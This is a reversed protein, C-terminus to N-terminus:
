HTQVVGEVARRIDKRSPSRPNTLGIRPNTSPEARPHPPRRFIPSPSLVFAQLCSLLRLVVWLSFETHQLSTLSFIKAIFHFHLFTNQDVFSFSSDLKLSPHLPHRLNVKKTKGEGGVVTLYEVICGRASVNLFLERMGEM